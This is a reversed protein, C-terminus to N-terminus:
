PAWGDVGEAHALVAFVIAAILLWVIVLLLKDNGNENNSFM